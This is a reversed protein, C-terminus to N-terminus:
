KPVKFTEASNTRRGTAVLRSISATTKKPTSAYAASGTASRGLTSKGVKFTAAASGPPSGSVSAAVIALGSSRCNEAIAPRSDIVEDDASPPLLTVSWNASSRAMSPAATSTCVAMASAVGSSGGPIGAGGVNRLTFGASWAIKTMASLESVGGSDSTSSYASVNIAGCTAAM